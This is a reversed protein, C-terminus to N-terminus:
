ARAGRLEAVIPFAERDNEPVVGQDQVVVSHGPEIRDSVLQRQVITLLKSEHVQAAAAPEGIALVASQMRPEITPVRQM